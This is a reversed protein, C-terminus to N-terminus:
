LDVIMGDFAVTISHPLFIEELESHLLQANHSFHTVVVRGDQNMIGQERLQATTELVAEVNMHTKRYDVNGMTCELIALDLRKDKLWEWTEEPFDGSDHGYLISKGDKEIYYLLCTENPDHAAYLPVVVATQLQVTEYPRVRHLVFKGRDGGNAEFTQRIKALTLDNGYVHIPHEESKAYGPFRAVIDEAYLHDSHSHTFILDKVKDLDFGDRHMHTLTDPPFDIKLEDGLMVSTRTRYNKGGLEKARKCGDCGCFLAPIGEFAATGLFRIKM